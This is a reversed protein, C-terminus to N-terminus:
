SEGIEGSSLAGSGPLTSGVSMRGSTIVLRGNSEGIEGSSLAESGPLTAGVKMRGSTIELRGGSGRVEGSPLAESGTVVADVLGGSAGSVCPWGLLTAGVKVRRSAVFLKALARSFSAM